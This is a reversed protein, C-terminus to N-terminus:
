AEGRKKAREFAKKRAEYRRKAEWETLADGFEIDEFADYRRKIDERRLAMQSVGRRALAANGSGEIAQLGYYVVKNILGWVFYVGAVVAALRMIAPANVTVVQVVYNALTIVFPGFNFNM